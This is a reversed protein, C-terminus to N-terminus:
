GLHPYPRQHGRLFNFSTECLAHPRKVSVWTRTPGKTAEGLPSPPGVSIMLGESVLGLAPIAETPGKLFTFSPWRLAHLRKVSVWTRTHDITVEGLPSPPEVSPTLGKSVRWNSQFFHLRHMINYAKFRSKLKACYGQVPCQGASQFPCNRINGNFFVIMSPPRDDV